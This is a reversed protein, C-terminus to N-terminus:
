PKRQMISRTDPLTLGQEAPFKNPKGFVEKELQEAHFVAPLSTISCAEHNEEADEESDSEDIGGSTVVEDDELAEFM